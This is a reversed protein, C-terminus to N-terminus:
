AGQRAAWDSARGALRRYHPWPPRHRNRTRESILHAAHPQLEALVYGWEELVLNDEVFGKEIYLGLIDLMALAGAAARGDGRNAQRLEAADNVSNVQERLVRRGRMQEPASLKEHLALFLDRKNLQQAQVQTQQQARGSLVHARIAVILSGIAVAASLGAIIVAAVDM